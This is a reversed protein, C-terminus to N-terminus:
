RPTAVGDLIPSTAVRAGHRGKWRRLANPACIVLFRPTVRYKKRRQIAFPIACLLYRTVAVRGNRNPALAQSSAAEVSWGRFAIDITKFSRRRLSKAKHGAANQLHQRATAAFAFFSEQVDGSSRRRSKPACWEEVSELNGIRMGDFKEACEYGTEESPTVIVGLGDGQNVTL